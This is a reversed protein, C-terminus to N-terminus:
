HGEKAGQWSWSALWRMVAARHFRIQKGLRRHPIENRAVLAYVTNRGVRLLRAVAEVDVVDEPKPPSPANAEPAGACSTLSDQDNPAAPARAVSGAPDTVAAQADAARM